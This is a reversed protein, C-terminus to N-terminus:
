LLAGLHAVPEELSCTLSVQAATLGRGAHGPGAGPLAWPGPGKLSRLHGSTCGLCLGGLGPVGSVQLRLQERCLLRPPPAM